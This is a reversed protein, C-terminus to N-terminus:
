SCAHTHEHHAHTHKVRLTATSSEGLAGPKSLFRSRIVEPDSEFFDVSPLVNAEANAANAANAAAGAELYLGAPVSASKGM